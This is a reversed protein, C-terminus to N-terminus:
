KQKKPVEELHLEVGDYIDELRSVVQRFERRRMEVILLFLREQYEALNGDEADAAFRQGCYRGVQHWTLGDGAEAGEVVAERWGRRFSALNGSDPNWINTM